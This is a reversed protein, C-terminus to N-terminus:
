SWSLGQPINRHLCAQLLFARPCHSALSHELVTLIYMYWAPYAQAPPLHCIFIIETNSVIPPTPSLCYPLPPLMM